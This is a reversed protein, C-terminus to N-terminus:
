PPSRRLLANVEACTEKVAVFKADLLNIICRADSTFNGANPLATTVVHAPNVHVIRGDVSHLTVLVLAEALMM